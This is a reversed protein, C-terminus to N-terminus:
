FGRAKLDRAVQQYFDATDGNYPAAERSDPAPVYLKDNRGTYFLHHYGRSWLPGQLTKVNEFNAATNAFRQRKVSVHVDNAGDSLSIASFLLFDRSFVDGWSANWNVIRGAYNLYRIGNNSELTAPIEEAWSATPAQVFQRLTEWSSPSSLGVQVTPPKMHRVSLDFLSRMSWRFRDAATTDCEAQGKCKEGLVLATGTATPRQWYVDLVDSDKFGVKSSDAWQGGNLLFALDLAISSSESGTDEGALSVIAAVEDKMRGRSADADDVPLLAAMYRADQVGQSVGILIVKDAHEAALAQQVTNRLSRARAEYSAFAPKDALYVANGCTERLRKVIALSFYRHYQRVDRTLDPEVVNRNRPPLDEEDAAVQWRSCTPKGQADQGKIACQTEYNLTQMCSAVGTAPASDSCVKSMSWHHSLVIPYKLKCTADQAHSYGAGLLAFVALSLGAVRHFSM